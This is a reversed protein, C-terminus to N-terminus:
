DKELRDTDDELDTENFSEMVDEKDKENRKILYFIFAIVCILLVVLLIWKIDM